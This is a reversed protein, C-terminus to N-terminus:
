RTGPELGPAGVMARVGCKGLCELEGFTTHFAAHSGHLPGGCKAAGDGTRGCKAPTAFAHSDRAQAMVPWRKALCVDVVAADGGVVLQAALELVHVPPGQEIFVSGRQM